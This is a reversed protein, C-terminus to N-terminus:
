MTFGCNKMDKVLNNVFTKETLRVCYHNSKKSSDLVNYGGVFPINNEEFFRKMRAVEGLKPYMHVFYVTTQTHLNDEIVKIKM